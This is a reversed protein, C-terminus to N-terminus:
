LQDSNRVSTAQIPCESSVILGDLSSATLRIRKIRFISELYKHAIANVSMFVFGYFFQMPAWGDYRAFGNKQQNCKKEKKASVVFLSM